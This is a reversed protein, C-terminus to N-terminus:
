KLDNPMVISTGGQFTTGSGCMTVFIHSDCLLLINIDKESLQMQCKLSLYKNPTM